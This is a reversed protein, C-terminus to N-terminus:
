LSGSRFGYRLMSPRLSAAFPFPCVSFRTVHHVILAGRDAIPRKTIESKTGAFFIRPFFFFLLFGMTAHGAPTRCAQLYGLLIPLYVVLMWNAHKGNASIKGSCLM